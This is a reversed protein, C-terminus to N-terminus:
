IRAFTGDYENAMRTIMQAYEYQDGPLPSPAAKVLEVPGGQNEFSLVTIGIGDFGTDRTSSRRPLERVKAMVREVSTPQKHRSLVIPFDSLNRLNQTPSAYLTAANIQVYAIALAQKSAGHIAQHASNLEDYLRPLAKVHATMAAKAELAVLVAGVPAVPFEPLDELAQIEDPLLEIGYRHALSRFSESPAKGGSAPRAIVLDLDKSRSTSHDVMTHNVGLVVKGETVHQRLLASTRLLDFAIGWCGVKSHRDSRPHYQWANGYKDPPSPTALFRTLIEPGYVIRLSANHSRESRSGSCALRTRRFNVRGPQM